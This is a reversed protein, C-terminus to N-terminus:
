IVSLSYVSTLAFIIVKLERVKIELGCKVVVASSCMDIQECPTARHHEYPASDGKVLESIM